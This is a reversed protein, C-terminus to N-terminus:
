APKVEPEKRSRYPGPAAMEIPFKQTIEFPYTILTKGDGNWTQSKKAYEARKRDFEESRRVLEYLEELETQSHLLRRASVIGKAASAAEKGAKPDVEGSLIAEALWAMFKAASKENPQLRPRQREKQPM